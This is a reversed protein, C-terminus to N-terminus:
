VYTKQAITARYNITGNITEESPIIFQKILTNSFDLYIPNEEDDKELYLGQEDLYYPILQPNDVTSINITLEESLNSSSEFSLFSWSDLVNEYTIDGNEDYAYYKNQILPTIDTGENWKDSIQGIVNSDIIEYFQAAKTDILDNLNYHLQYNFDVTTGDYLSVDLIKVDSPTEYIGYWIKQGEEERMKAPVFIIRQLPTIDNNDDMDNYPNVLDLKVKYGYGLHVEEQTTTERIVQFLSEWSNYSSPEGEGNYLILQNGPIDQYVSAVTTEWNSLWETLTIIERWQAFFTVDHNENYEEGPQYLKSGMNIEIYTWLEYGSQISPEEEENYKHWETIQTIDTIEAGNEIICYWITYSSEEYENQVDITIPNKNEWTITYRKNESSYSIEPKGKYAIIKDENIPAYTNNFYQWGIFVKDRYSPAIISLNIPKNHEKIQNKPLSSERGGNANYEIDYTDINWKAVLEVNEIPFFTEEDIKVDNLYWGKFNHGPYEPIYNNLNVDKTKGEIWQAYLKLDSWSSYEQGGEYHLGSGDEATNWNDFSYTTTVSVTIPNELPEIDDTNYNLTIYYPPSTYAPRTIYKDGVEGTSIIVSENPGFVQNEPVPEGYVEYSVTYSNSKWAANFITESKTLEYFTDGEIIENNAGFIQWGLFEKDEKTDLKPLKIIYPQRNESWEPYLDLSLSLINENSDFNSVIGELKETAIYSNGQPYIVGQETKWNGGFSYSTAISGQYEKILDGESYCKGIITLINPTKTPKELSITFNDSYNYSQTISQNNDNINHYTIYCPIKKWGAYFNWESQTSGSPREWHTGGDAIKYDENRAEPDSYWGTFIYGKRQPTYLVTGSVLDDWQAYFTISSNDIIIPISAPDFNGFYYRNNEINDDSTNLTWYKFPRYQSIIDVKSTLIDEDNLYHYIVKYTTTQTDTPVIIPDNDGNEYRDLTTSQNLTPFNEHSSYSGDEIWFRLGNDINITPNVTKSEPINRIEYGQENIINSNYNIIYSKPTWGAFVTKECDGKINETNYFAYEETGSVDSSFVLQANNLDCSDYWGSFNFGPPWSDSPWSDGPDPIIIKGNSSGLYEYDLYFTQIDDPYYIKEYCEEKDSVPYWTSDTIPYVHFKDDLTKFKWGNFHYLKQYGNSVFNGYNQFIFSLQYNFGKPEEKTEIDSDYFLKCTKGQPLTDDTPFVLSKESFDNDDYKIKTNLREWQPYFTIDRTFTIIADLSYTNNLDDEWGTCRHYRLMPTILQTKEGYEWFNSPGIDIPSYFDELFSKEEASSAGNIEEQVDTPLNIDFKQYIPGIPCSGIGSRGIFVLNEGNISYFLETKFYINSIGNTRNQQLYAGFPTPLPNFSSSQPFFDEGFEQWSRNDNINYTYYFKIVNDEPLTIPNDGVANKIYGTVLFGILNTPLNDDIEYKVGVQIPIPSSVTDGYYIYNETVEAM